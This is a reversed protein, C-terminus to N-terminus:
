ELNMFRDWEERDGSGSVRITYSHEEGDMGIEYHAADKKIGYVAAGELQAFLDAYDETPVPQDPLEQQLVGDANYVKCGEEIIEEIQADFIRLELGNTRMTRVDRNKSNTELIKVNDIAICFTGLGMQVASVYGDTFDFTSLENETSFRM